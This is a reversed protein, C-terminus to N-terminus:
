PLSAIINATLMTLGNLVGHAVSSVAISRSKWALGGLLLGGIPVIVWFFMPHDRLYYAHALTFLGAQFLWIWVDRWGSKKMVGWLLARFVPEEDVAAYGLQYPIEALEGVIAAPIMNQLGEVPKLGISALYGSIITVILALFIAFIGWLVEKSPVGHRQFLRKRFYVALGLAIGWILLSPIKPFTLPSNLAAYETALYITELPKFLIIIWIALPTVHYDALSDSTIVLFAATLAYTCLSYTPSVWGPPDASILRSGTILGIRLGLCALLIWFLTRQNATRIQATQDQGIAIM